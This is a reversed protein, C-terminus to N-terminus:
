MGGLECVKATLCCQWYGFLVEGRLDLLIELAYLMDARNFIGFSLLSSSAASYVSSLMIPFDDKTTRESEVKNATELLFTESGDSAHPIVHDQFPLDICAYCFIM